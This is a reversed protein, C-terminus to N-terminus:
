HLRGPVWLGAVRGLSRSRGQRVDDAVGTEGARLRAVFGEVQARTQLGERLAQGVLVTVTLPNGQTYGLLARWDEVDTRRRDHTAAIARALQVREAMPMAPLKVRRPLGGLWDHEDRRSTLLVKARTDRIARLFGALEAQEEETWASPTGTPFGAVPEVNDWIWLVPVQQLLQLAVQRREADTLTLWHIGGAELVQEFTAGLQDLVRALPLHQEFSTFLVPGQVGGTLQYWRAFEAATSTKGSGAYAHLLVVQHTDFARDLALLTEDRGFFGV